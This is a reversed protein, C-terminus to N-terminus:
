KQKDMGLRVLFIGLGGVGGLGNEKWGMTWTRTMGAELAGIEWDCM